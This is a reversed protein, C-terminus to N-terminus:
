AAQWASVTMTVDLTDKNEQSKRLRLKRVRVVGPSREIDQLLRMLKELPVKSFSVEVSSERPRGNQGGSQVGRDLMSGIEIGEQRALGDVFGMLAPPSQRLRMELLRREQEQQAYGASLNQVKEFAGRKEELSDQHRSISSGFGIWLVLLVFVVAGAGAFLLLRRERPSATQVYETADALIARLKEISQRLKEM